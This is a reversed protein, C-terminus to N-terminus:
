PVLAARMSALHERPHNIFIQEILSRVTRPPRDPALRAARDLEEDALSRILAAGAAGNGELLAITEERTCDAYEEAHRENLDYGRRPREPLPQGKAMAPIVRHVMGEQDYGAAIHHATVGVTWGEGECLRRWGADSCAQVFVVVDKNIAEFEEALTLVEGAM